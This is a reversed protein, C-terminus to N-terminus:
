EAGIAELPKIRGARRGPLWCAVFATGLLLAAVGIITRPDTPSVEFLLAQLRTALGLAAVLGIASGVAAYRMGRAVVLRTIEAPRAGLALRVGIERRRQRVVYSMLGFVGLASLAIGASAFAALVAAWRRPDNLADDFRESITAVELPLEPDLGRVADHLERVAAGTGTQSRLVVNIARANSQGIPGYVAETAGAPGLNRIDAVVGVITTRPCDYCGGQILKRGVPDEGPLYRRAWSRSVVIVPDGEGSDADTFGRGAVAKVGLASLYGQTVYYWPSKFHWM